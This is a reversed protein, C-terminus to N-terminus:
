PSSVSVLWICSIRHKNDFKQRFMNRADNHGDDPCCSRTSSCATNQVPQAPQPQSHNNPATDHATHLKVSHVCSLVYSWVVVALWLRCLWHLVGFAAPCPIIRRIFPMVIGSVHQSRLKIIFILNTADQQNRERKVRLERHVTVLVQFKWLQTKVIRNQKINLATETTCKTEVNM